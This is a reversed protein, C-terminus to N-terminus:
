PSVNKLALTSTVASIAANKRDVLSEDLLPIV